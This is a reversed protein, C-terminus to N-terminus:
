DRRWRPKELVDTTLLAPKIGSYMASEKLQYFPLVYRSTVDFNYM